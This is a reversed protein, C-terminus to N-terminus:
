PRGDLERPPWFSSRRVVNGIPRQPEPRLLLRLKRRLYQPFTESEYETWVVFAPEGNPAKMQPRDPAEPVVASRNYVPQFTTICAWEAWLAEIRREFSMTTVRAVEPWWHKGKAHERKRREVDGTIGAYLPQGTDDFYRYLYTTM